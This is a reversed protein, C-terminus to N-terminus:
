PTWEAAVAARVVDALARHGITTFHICDAKGKIKDTRLAATGGGPLRFTSRYSDVDPYGFTERLRIQHDRPVRAELRHAWIKLRNSAFSRAPSQCAIYTPAPIMWYVPLSRSLADAQMWEINALNRPLYGPDTPIPCRLRNPAHRAANPLFHAVVADADPHENLVETWWGWDVWMCTTSSGVAEQVVTTCYGKETFGQPLFRQMGAAISDGMVVITKCDRNPAPATGPIALGPAIAPQKGTGVPNCAAAHLVFGAVGAFALIGTLRRRNRTTCYM